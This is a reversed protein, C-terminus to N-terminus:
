TRPGHERPWPPRTAVARTHTMASLSSQRWLSASAALYSCEVLSEVSGLAGNLVFKVEVCAIMTWDFRNDETLTVARIQRGARCSHRSLQVSCIRLKKLEPSALMILRVRTISERALKQVVQTKQPQLPVGTFADEAIVATRAMNRVFREVEEEAEQARAASQM